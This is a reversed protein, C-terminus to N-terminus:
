VDRLAAIPTERFVDRGALLGILLTLAVIAAAIGVVPVIPLAFATKFIFRVAAWGGVLSLVMGTLGGLVGLLSYEALL